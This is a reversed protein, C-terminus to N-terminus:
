NGYNRSIVNFRPFSVTNQILEVLFMSQDDKSPGPRMILFTVVPWEIIVADMERGLRDFIMVTSEDRRASESYPRM